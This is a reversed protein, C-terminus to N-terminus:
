RQPGEAAALVAPNEVATNLLSTLSMALLREEIGSPPRPDASEDRDGDIRRRAITVMASGVVMSEMAELIAMRYDAPVGCEALRAEGFGMVETRPRYGGVMIDVLYPRDVLLRRYAVGVDTLWGIWDDSSPPMDIDALAARAAAALIASRGGEFHYYFSAQNVGLTQALRRLTFSHLGDRQLIELSAEVTAERTILAVAPRGM